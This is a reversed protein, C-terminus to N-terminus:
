TAECNPPRFYLATSFWDLFESQMPWRNLSSDSALACGQVIFCSFWVGIKDLYKFATYLQSLAPGHLSWFARTRSWDTDLRKYKYSKIDRGNIVHFRSVTLSLFFCLCQSLWCQSSSFSGSLSKSPFCVLFRIEFTKCVSFCLWLIFCFLDDRWLNSSCVCNQPVPTCYPSQTVTTVDAFPKEINKQM